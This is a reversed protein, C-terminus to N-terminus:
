RDTGHGAGIMGFDPHSRRRAWVLDTALDTFLTLILKYVPRKSHDPNLSVM